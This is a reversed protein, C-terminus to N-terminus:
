VMEETNFNIQGSGAQQNTNVLRKAAASRLGADDGSSSEKKGGFMGLTSVKLAKNAYKKMRKRMGM